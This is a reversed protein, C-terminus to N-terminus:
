QARAILAKLMRAYQQDADAFAKVYAGQSLQQGDWNGDFRLVRSGIDYSDVAEPGDTLGNAGSDSILVKTSVISASNLDIYVERYQQKAIKQEVYLTVEMRASVVLLQGPFFLAAVFRDGGESDKAAIADLQGSSMVEVLQTALAGSEQATALGATVVFLTALLSAVLWPCPQIRWM